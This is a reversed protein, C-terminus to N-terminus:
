VGALHQIQMVVVCLRLLLQLLLPLVTTAQLVTVLAPMM